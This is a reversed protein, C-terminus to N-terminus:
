QAVIAQKQFGFAEEQNAQNSARILQQGEAEAVGSAIYQTTSIGSDFGVSNMASGVASQTQKSAYSTGEAFALRSQGIQNDVSAMNLRASKEIAKNQRKANKRAAMGQVLAFGAAIGLAAWGAPGAAAAVPAAAALGAGTMLGQQEM